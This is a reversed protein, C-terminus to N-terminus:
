AVFSRIIDTDESLALREIPMGQKYLFEFAQTCSKYREFCSQAEEERCYVKWCGSCLFDQGENQIFGIVDEYPYGLFFGIEHPFACPGEGGEARNSRVVQETLHKICNPLSTTDYGHDELYCEINADSLHDWLMFPRYAYVMIGTHLRTLVALQVGHPALKTRCRAFGEYFAAEFTAPSVTTGQASAATRVASDDRCVFLNAPKLGALTPSCHRILKGELDLRYPSEVSLNMM